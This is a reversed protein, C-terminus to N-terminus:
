QRHSYSPPMESSTEAKKKAYIRYPRLNQTEYSPLEALHNLQIPLMNKESLFIFAYTM